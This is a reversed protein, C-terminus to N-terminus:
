RKKRTTSKKTGSSAAPAASEHMVLLPNGYEDNFILCVGKEDQDIELYAPNGYKDFINIYDGSVEWNQVFTETVPKRNPMKTVSKVSVRGNNRFSFTMTMYAGNGEMKGSFTKGGFSYAFASICTMIVVVALTLFRKM